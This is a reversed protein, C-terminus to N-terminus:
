IRRTADRQLQEPQRELVSRNRDELAERLERRDVRDDLRGRRDAVVARQLHIRVQDDIAGHRERSRSIPRALVQHRGADGFALVRQAHEAERERGALFAHLDNVLAAHPRGLLQM